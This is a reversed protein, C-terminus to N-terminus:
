HQKWLSQLERMRRETVELSQGNRLYLKNEGQDIRKVQPLQVMQTNNVQYFRMLAFLETYYRFNRASSPERGDALYFQTKDAQGELYLIDEVAVIEEAGGGAPLVLQRVEGAPKGFNRLLVEYRDHQREQGIRQVVTGVAQLLSEKDIPKLILEVESLRITHLFRKEFATVFIAEFSADYAGALVDFGTGDPMELDLFVLQPQHMRIQEIGERCNAAMGVAEIEPCYKGLMLSIIDRSNREDDIIVARIM